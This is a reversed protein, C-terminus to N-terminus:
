QGIARKLSFTIEKLSNKNENVRFCGEIYVQGGKDVEIRPFFFSILQKKERNTMGSWTYPLDQLSALAGGIDEVKVEGAQILMLNRNLASRLGKIQVDLENVREGFQAPSLQGTEFAEMYVRKRGEIDQIQRELQQAKRKASNVEKGLDKNKERLIGLVLNKDNRLRILEDYIVSEIDDADVVGMDCPSGTRKSKGTRLYSDAYYRQVSVHGDQRKYYQTAGSMRRGCHHCYLDLLYDNDRQARVNHSVGENYEQVASFLDDPIIAEHIGDWVQDFFLLKGVYVPNKLMAIVQPDRIKKGKKTKYGQSVLWEALALYSWGQLRRQFIGRVGEAEWTNPVLNKNLLDYGFPTHGGPWEGRRVKAQLGAALRRRIQKYEQRSFFLKMELRAEDEDNNPDYIAYPTVVIIKNKKLNNLILGAEAMNGRGLRDVDMCFVADYTGEDWDKLLQQFVPRVYISDGTELEEHVRCTSFGYHSLLEQLRERHTSLPDIGAKVKDMDERSLRLYACPRTITPKNFM